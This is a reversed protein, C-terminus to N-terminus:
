YQKIYVRFFHTTKNALLGRFIDTSGLTQFLTYQQKSTVGDFHWYHKIHVIFIQKSKSPLLETFTHTDNSIFESFTNLKLQNVNQQRKTVMLITRFFILKTQIQNRSTKQCNLKISNLFQMLYISYIVGRISKIYLTVRGQRIEPQSSRSLDITSNIQNM